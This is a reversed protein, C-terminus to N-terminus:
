LYLKKSIKKRLRDRKDNTKRPIKEFKEEWANISFTMMWLALNGNIIQSDSDKMSVYDKM